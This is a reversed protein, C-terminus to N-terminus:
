WYHKRKSRQEWSSLYINSRRFLCESLNCMEDQRSIAVSHLLHSWMIDGSSSTSTYYVGDGWPAWGFKPRFCLLMPFPAKGGLMSFIIPSVLGATAAATIAATPQTILTTFMLPPLLTCNHVEKSSITHIEHAQPSTLRYSICCRGATKRNADTEQIWSCIMNIFICQALTRVITRRVWQCLSSARGTNLWLNRSSPWMSVAVTSIVKGGYLM